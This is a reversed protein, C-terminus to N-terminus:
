FNYRLAFIIQVAGLTSTTLNTSAPLGWDVDGLDIYRLEIVTVIHNGLYLSVGAGATWALGYTAHDIKVPTGGSPTYQGSLATRSLGLGGVM